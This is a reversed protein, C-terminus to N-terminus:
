YYIFPCVPRLVAADAPEIKKADLDIAIPKADLLDSTWVLKETALPYELDLKKFSESLLDKSSVMEMAEEANPLFWRGATAGETNLSLTFKAAPYEVQDTTMEVIRQTALDGSRVASKADSYIANNLNAILDDETKIADSREFKTNVDRFSVFPKIKLDDGSYITTKLEKTAWKYKPCKLAMARRKSPNIVVGIITKGVIKTDSCTMDSYLYSGKKCNEICFVISTDFPCRLMQGQCSSASSTYGLSNCSPPTDACTTGASEISAIADSLKLNDLKRSFDAKFESAIAVDKLTMNNVKATTYDELKDVTTPKVTIFPADIIYRDTYHASPVPTQMVAYNAYTPTMMAAGSAAGRSPEHITQAHASIGAFLSFALVTLSVGMKTKTTKKM